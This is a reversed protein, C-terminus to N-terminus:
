QELLSLSLGPVVCLYVDLHEDFCISIMICITNNEWEVKQIINININNKCVCVCVQYVSAQLQTKVNSLAAHNDKWAGDPGISLTTVTTADSGSSSTSNFSIPPSQYLGPALYLTPLVVEMVNENQIIALDEESWEGVILAYAKNFDYEFVNQLQSLIAVAVDNDESNNNNNNSNNDSGADNSNLSRIVVGTERNTTFSEKSWYISSISAMTGNDISLFKATHTKYQSAFTSYFFFFLM